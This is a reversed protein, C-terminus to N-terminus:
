RPLMKKYTDYKNGFAIEQPRCLGSKKRPKTNLIISQNEIKMEDVYKM